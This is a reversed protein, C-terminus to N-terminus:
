DCRELSDGGSPAGDLKLAIKGLVGNVFKSSLDDGGYDKALEVAENISVSHPVDDLYMMEFAALRLISLDVLPMRGISWHESTQAILEDVEVIHACVGKLLICTFECPLGFDEIYLGKVLIDAAPVATIQSQYLMQLAKRRAVSRAQHPHTKQRQAM